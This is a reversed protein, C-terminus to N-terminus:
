STASSTPPAVPPTHLFEAIAASSNAIKLLIAFLLPIGAFIALVNLFPVYICVFVICYALALGVPIRPAEFGYRAIFANADLALGRFAVFVWYINFLPIFCLGLAAGPTTRAHGDQIQAWSRYILIWVPVAAVVAICFGISALALAWLFGQTTVRATDPDTHMLAVAPSAIMCVVTLGCLWAWWMFLAVFSNPRYSRRRPRAPAAGGPAGCKPCSIAADSIEAACQECVVLM